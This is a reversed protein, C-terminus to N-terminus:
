GGAPIPQPKHLNQLSDFAYIMPKTFRYGPFPGSFRLDIVFSVHYFDYAFDM